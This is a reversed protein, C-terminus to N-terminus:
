TEKWLPDTEVIKFTVFRRSLPSHVFFTADGVGFLPNKMEFEYNKVSNSDVVSDPPLPLASSITLHAFGHILSVRFSLFLYATPRVFNTDSQTPPPETVCHQLTMAFADHFPVGMAADEVARGRSDFSCFRSDQGSWGYIFGVRWVIEDPGTRETLPVSPVDPMSWDVRITWQWDSQALPAFGTPAVNQRSTIPSREFQMRTTITTATDTPRPPSVGNEFRFRQQYHIPTVFESILQTLELPFWRFASLTSRVARVRADDTPREDTTTIVPQKKESSKSSSGGM